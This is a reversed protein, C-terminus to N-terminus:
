RNIRRIRKWNTFWRDCCRKEPVLYGFGLYFINNIIFNILIIILIVTDFYLLEADPHSHVMFMLLWLWIRAFMTVFSALVINTRYNDKSSSEDANEFIMLLMELEEDLPKVDKLNLEPNYIIENFAELNTVIKHEDKNPNQGFKRFSLNNKFNIKIIM